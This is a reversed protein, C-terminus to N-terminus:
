TDAREAGRGNREAFSDARKRLRCKASVGLKKSLDEQTYNYKERYYKIRNNPNGRRKKGKVELETIAM